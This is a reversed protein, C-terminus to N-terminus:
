VTPHIYNKRQPNPDDQLKILIHTQINDQLVTGFGHVGTSTLTSEIFIYPFLILPYYSIVPIFPLIDDEYFAVLHSYYDYMLVSPDVGQKQNRLDTERHFLNKLNFEAFVVDKRDKEHDPPRLHRIGFLNALM